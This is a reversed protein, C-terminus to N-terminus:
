LELQLQASLRTNSLALFPTAQLPKPQNLVPTNAQVGTHTVDILFRVRSWAICTFSGSLTRIIGKGHGFDTDLWEARLAPMLKIQTSVDFAYAFIGWASWFRNAGYRRDIDVRDGYVFEGRAMFGKKKFRADFGYAGGRDWRKQAPYLPDPPNPLTEKSSTEFPRNFTIARVHYVTDLGLRLSKSPKIEVRGSVAGAPLDHEDKAHGRFAGLSVRMRKAKRLPAGM